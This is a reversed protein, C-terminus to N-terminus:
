TGSHRQPPCRYNKPDMPAGDFSFKVEQGVLCPQLLITKERLKMWEFGNQKIFHFSELV